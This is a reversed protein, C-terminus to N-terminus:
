SLLHADRRPTEPGWSGTADPRQSGAGDIRDAWHRFTRAAFHALPSTTGRTLRADHAEKRLRATYEIANRTFRYDFM